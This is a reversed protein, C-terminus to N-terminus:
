YTIQVSPVLGRRIMNIVARAQEETIGAQMVAEKAATLIAARHATDAERIRAEKEILAKEDAQRQREDAAAKEAMAKADRQAQEARQEAALKERKAQEAQLKLQLERREAEAKADAERKAAADREAQARQEAERKALDAAERAIREQEDKRAREDAEARLRVLEAQEAEHQQRVVLAARLSILVKDKTRAAEAEYEEWHLGIEVAEASAVLAAIGEATEQGSLASLAVMSDIGNQHKDRRTEEAAQWENLPQRVEDRLADMKQVFERLEAEITKPLEKIRKLYERGPKEVATKSRAVQAALTAIRERGKRTTLDPVEGIVEARAAEVYRDLIKIGYIAPAKDASIEDLPILEANANM